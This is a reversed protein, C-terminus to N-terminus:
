FNSLKLKRAKIDKALNDVLKKGCKELARYYQDQDISVGGINIATGQLTNDADRGEATGHWVVEDDSARIVRLDARVKVYDNISNVTGLGAANGLVSGFVSGVDDKEIGADVKLVRGTLFYKVDQERGLSEIFANNLWFAQEDPYSVEGALERVAFINREIVENEIFSALLEDSEVETCATTDVFKLIACSPRAGILMHEAAATQAVAMFLLCFVALGLVHWIKRM